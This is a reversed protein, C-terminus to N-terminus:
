LDAFLEEISVDDPEPMRRTSPRNTERRWDEPDTHHQAADELRTCMKAISMQQEPDVEGELLGEVPQLSAVM